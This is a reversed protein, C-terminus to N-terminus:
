ISLFLSTHLYSYKCAHQQTYSPIAVHLHPISYQLTIVVIQAGQRHQHQDALGGLYPPSTTSYTNSIYVTVSTHIHLNNSMLHTPVLIYQHQSHIPLVFMVTYQSFDCPQTSYMYNVQEVKTM